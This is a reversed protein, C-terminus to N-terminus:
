LVYKVLIKFDILKDGKISGSRIPTNDYYQTQAIKFNLSLQRNIKCKLVGVIRQGEGYFAPVSFSYLVDPEYVYIRTSYNPTDFLLYRLSYSWNSELPKYKIDYLMLYGWDNESRSWVSRSKFAFDNLKYNLQAFIKMSTAEEIEHLGLEDNQNITKSEWNIRTLAQYKKSPKYELQINHDRGRLPVNTYYSKEPFYFYDSYSSLTWKRSLDLSIASYLGRENRTNSQEGFTNSEWSYYDSPYNLYLLAYSLNRSINITLGSLYSLTKHASSLEGFLHMNKLTVSYDAAFSLTNELTDQLIKLPKDWQKYNLYISSNFRSKEFSLRSGITKQLLQNKNEIETQTRHLGVDSLSTVIHSSEDYNGDIPKYSFWSSWKWRKYKQEIAVGRYFHSERTSTHSRLTPSRKFTSLVNASKGYSFGQYELLGQGLSLQYDGIFLQTNRKKINLHFSNFDLWKEGADKETLFGFNVNKSSVKYRLYHKSKDGVFTNDSFEIQDELFSQFLTTIQHRSHKVEVSKPQVSVCEFLLSITNRNLGDIAQLEYVSRFLTKSKRYNIISTAEEKSIFPLQLLDDVSCDNLNIPSELVEYIFLLESEDVEENELYFVLSEPLDQAYICNCFLIFFLIKKM